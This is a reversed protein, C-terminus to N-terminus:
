CVQSLEVKEEGGIGVTRMFDAYSLMGPSQISHFARFRNAFKWDWSMYKNETKDILGFEACIYLIRFIGRCLQGRGKTYYEEVTCMIHPQPPLIGKAKLSDKAAVLIAESLKESSSVTMAQPTKGKKKGKKGGGARQAEKDARQLEEAENLLAVEFISCECEHKLSRLKEQTTIRTTCIFDWYWYFYDMENVALLGAEAILGMHFDMLQSTVVTVWYLCWQQREDQIDNQKNFTTDVYKAEMVLQGWHSLVQELKVVLRNRHASLIRLTEWAVRSISGLLHESILDHRVVANPFGRLLMTRQILIPFDPSLLHIAGIYVARPLLHMRSNSCLLSTQLVHEFDLSESMAVAMEEVMEIARITENCINYLHDICDHFSKLNMFRISSIQLTKALTSNYGFEISPEEKHSSIDRFFVSTSNENQANESKSLEILKKIEVLTDSATNAALRAVILADLAETREQEQEQETVKLKTSNAYKISKLISLHMAQFFRHLNLRCTLLVKVENRISSLSEVEYGSLM